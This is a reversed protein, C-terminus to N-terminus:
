NSKGKNIEFKCFKDNIDERNAKQVTVPLLQPGQLVVPNAQSNLLAADNRNQSALASAVNKVASSGNLDDHSHSSPTDRGSIIPTDRGSFTDLDSLGDRLQELQNADDIDDLIQNLDDKTAQRDNTEEDDSSSISGCDITDCCPEEVSEPYAATLDIDRDMM